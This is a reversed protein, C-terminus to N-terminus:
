WGEEIETDACVDDATTQASVSRRRERTAVMLTTAAVAATEVRLVHPGLSVLDTALALEEPTWGGEPGIALSLDASRLARGGHDAVVADGLVDRAPRPGEIVPLWLRRSQM